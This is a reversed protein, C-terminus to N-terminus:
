GKLYEAEEVYLHDEKLSLKMSWLQGVKMKVEGSHATIKLTKGKHRYVKAKFRDDKKGVEIIRGAEIILNSPTTILEAESLPKELKPPAELKPLSKAENEVQPQPIEELVPEIPPTKESIKQNTKKKSTTSAATEQKQVKGLVAQAKVKTETASSAKAAEQEQKRAKK